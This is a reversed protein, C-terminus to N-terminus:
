SIRNVLWSISECLRGGAILPHATKVQCSVAVDSSKPRAECQCRAKRLGADSASGANRYLTNKLGASYKQDRERPYRDGVFREL